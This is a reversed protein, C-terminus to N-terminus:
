RTSILNARSVDSVPSKREFTLKLGLLKALGGGILALVLQPLCCFLVWLYILSNDHIMMGIFNHRHFKVFIWEFVSICSDTDLLFLLTFGLVSALGVFEFGLLFSPAARNRRLAWAGALAGAALVNIMPLVGFILEVAGDLFEVAPDNSRARLVRRLIAGNVGILGVIAMLMGISIRPMRM